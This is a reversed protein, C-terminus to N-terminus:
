FKRFTLIAEKSSLVLESYSLKEVAFKGDDPVGFSALASYDVIDDKPPLYITGIFLSDATRKFRALYVGSSHNVGFKMLNLQVSWYIRSYKNALIEGDSIRKWETMQWMGGFDGNDDVKDCRVFSLSFSLILLIIIPIKKM